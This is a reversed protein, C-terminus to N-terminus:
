PGEPALADWGTVKALKSWALDLEMSARLVNYRQEAYARAPDIIEKDELTGVDIAQQVTALWRKAYKVATRYTELRSQWDIVEAYAEEVEAGVGTLAKRDLAQVEDLQAQAQKLRAWQPVVDLKWQFVLAAGYHFYNADSSVFPNIQNAVEPAASVGMQLALGLDPFFGSQSLRVQAERAEIGARAMRVDPRYSRAATQYEVLSALRRTSAALPEDPIRLTDDGTYFRLGALAVRESKRAESRRAGIEASYTKLKLVDIPDGQDDAVKQELKETAEALVETADDLLALADRALQLGFYARRVDFRISDRTVDLEAESVSVGASAADWLNTIKGFTWIPVVGAITAQWGVGLSSTLSTDTNPSYVASGLVTPALSLGGNAWFNMYPAFHAEDLQARVRALRARAALLDPHNRDALELCRALSAGGTSAPPSTAAAGVGPPAAEAPTAPSSAAPAQPQAWAVQTALITGLLAGFAEHARRLASSGAM